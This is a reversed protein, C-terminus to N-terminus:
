CTLQCILRFIILTLIALGSWMHWDMEGEEASWWSFVMLGVLSWHFVRVPLDWVKIKDTGTSTEM